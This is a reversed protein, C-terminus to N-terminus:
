SADFLRALMNAIGRRYLNLNSGRQPCVCNSLFVVALQRAPDILLSTGTFGTHGFTSNSALRGMFYPAAIVWGLGQAEDPDPHHISTMQAVTEPQLLFRSGSQSGYSGCQLLMTCFRALDEVTSFLGAQGAVGGMKWANEDHVVGHVLGGRWSVCETPAIRNKLAAPPIFLTDHMGLPDFIYTRSYEDLNLSTIERIVEGLLIFGLDNYLYRTGPPFVLKQQFIGALIQEPSHCHRYLRCPGPLGSTHTLVHRVTITAKQADCGFPPLYTCIPDDLQLHGQEILQLIATTTAVVKTLSALDYLTQTTVPVPEHQEYAKDATKGYATCKVTEGRWGVWLAAGPFAKEHIGREILADIEALIETLTSAVPM